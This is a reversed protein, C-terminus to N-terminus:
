LPLDQFRAMFKLIPNYYKIYPPPLKLVTGGFKEKFHSFGGWNKTFLPFRDDDVGELDILEYGLNKFYLIGHWMLLYGGKGKRGEGSTGGNIYTACNGAGFFVKGSILQNDEDYVETLYCRDKFIDRKKALDRFPQLYFRGRKATDKAIVYFIELQKTSPNPFFETRNGERKARNIQYKGSKSVREWLQGESKTLEMLMTSPPTLPFRSVVYGRKKLLGEDQGFGPEIKIFMCRDKECISEIEDLDKKQFVKPRQVKSVAGLPTKMLCVKLGNKTSIIKWGLFELYKTWEDSQRLSLYTVKHDGDGIAEM